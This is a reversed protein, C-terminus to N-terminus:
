IRLGQGVATEQVQHQFDMMWLDDVFQLESVPSVRRAVEPYPM